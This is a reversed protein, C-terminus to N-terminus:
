DNNQNKEDDAASWAKRRALHDYDESRIKEPPAFPENEDLYKELTTRIFELSNLALTKPHSIEKLMNEWSADKLKIFALRKVQMAHIKEFGGQQAIIAELPLQPEFQQPEPSLIHKMPPLSGTKYDYIACRDDGGIDIRDARATLIIKQGSIEVDIKGEIEPLIESFGKRLTNKELLIFQEAMNEFFPMWFARVIQQEAQAADFHKKGLAILEDLADDPLERPYKAAFKELIDHIISGRETPTPEEDIPKLPKLRLIREAYFAYPDFILKTLASASLKKPKAALPPKPEPRKAAHIDESRPLQHFVNMKHPAGNIEHGAGKIVNQLRQLWRSPQQPTGDASKKARTLVLQPAALNQQFDHAAQGTQTEPAALGLQKRMARNLWPDATIQAPWVGENLAGVIVLDASQLRAELPSWIHLRSKLGARPRFVPATTLLSELLFPYAKVKITKVADGYEILRRLHDAIPRGADHEWLAQVFNGALAEACAIHAKLLGIFDAEPNQTLSAFPAFIEELENMLFILDDDELKQKIAAFGKPAPGRLACLEIKRIKQRFQERTQKGRALPHKVCSLFAIPSFDSIVAEAILMLFVFVPLSTLKVGASDDIDINWIKLMAIVRRALARDHTILAATADEQELNERLMLAIVAAEERVNDAEILTIQDLAERLDDPPKSINQQWRDTTETPRLTERILWHRTSTKAPGWVEVQNRCVGMDALLKKLGYQPHEEDLSNWDHEDRKNMDVDLGPLIIAGRKFRTVAKLLFGTAPLSGTSGAVIIPAAPPNNDLHDAFSRLLLNRRAIPDALNRKALYDPWVEIIVNLLQLIKQWHEAFQEDALERLQARDVEYRDTLDIFRTLEYALDAAMTNQAGSRQILATLVVHREVPDIAAPINPIKQMWIDDDLNDELDGLPLITPLMLAKHESEEILTQSLLRVARRTPLLITTAHLQDASPAASGLIKDEADRALLGRALRHLFDTGAPITLIPNM